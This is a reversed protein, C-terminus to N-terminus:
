YGIVRNTVAKADKWIEFVCDWQMHHIEPGDFSAWMLVDLHEIEKWRSAPM